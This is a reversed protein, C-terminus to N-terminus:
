DSNSKMRLLIWRIRDQSETGLLGQLPRPLKPKVQSEKVITDELHDSKM